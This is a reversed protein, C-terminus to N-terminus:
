LVEELAYIIGLEKPSLAIIDAEKQMESPATNIVIKKDAIALMSIDNNDDGAVVIRKKNLKDKLFKVANGKSVSHDTILLLHYNLNFPDKILTIALLKEKELKEKIIEMTARSGFCKILPFSLLFDKSFSPVNVWIADQRKQLDKIYELHEKSFNNKRYYCFDGKEYGSYVLFDLSFEEYAKEVLPLISSSLYKKNLEKKEPMSLIISGNQCCLYYPFDFSKLAGLAFAFPRGTVFFLDYGKNSLNKLYNTIEKPVSFKTDTITGDIDLCILTDM